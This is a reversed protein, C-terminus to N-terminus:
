TKRTEQKDRLINVLIRNREDQEKRERKKDDSVKLMRDYDRAWKVGRLWVNLEELTGSFLEADRAYIPLSTEDKPKLGVFDGFPGNGYRSHAMMLGLSDVEEILRQMRIIDNYGSM